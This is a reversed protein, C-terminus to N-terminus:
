AIVRRATYLELVKTAADIVSMGNANHVVLDPAVPLEAVIDTGVVNGSCSYVGRDDRGLRDEAPATVLVEFYGDIHQRNWEQVDHFLSVTACVVEHGQDSVNQSLRAYFHALRRRELEDHGAPYPLIRRVADGDFLM